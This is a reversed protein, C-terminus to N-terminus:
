SVYMSSARSLRNKSLLENKINVVPFDVMFFLVYKLDVISTIANDKLETCAKAKSVDSIM